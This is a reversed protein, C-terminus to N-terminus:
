PTDTKHFARWRFRCFRFPTGHPSAIKDPRDHSDQHDDDQDDEEQALLPCLGTGSAINDPSGLDGRPEAQTVDLAHERFPGHKRQNHADGRGTRDFRTSQRPGETVRSGGAGAEVRGGDRGSPERLGPLGCSPRAQVVEAAGVGGAKDEGPYVELGRLRAQPM